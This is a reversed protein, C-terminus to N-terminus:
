KLNIYVIKQGKRSFTNVPFLKSALFGAGFAGAAIGLKKLNQKDTIPQNFYSGNVLNLIFYGAGGIMLLIPVRERIFRQPHLVKIRRIDLYNVKTFFTNLTDPVYTGFITPVKQIVYMRVSITDHHIKEIPGEVYDGSKTEFLIPSGEYFNKITRGNKKKVSIIDSVQAMSSFQFAVIFIVLLLKPM